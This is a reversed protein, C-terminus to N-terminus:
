ICKYIANHETNQTKLMFKAVTDSKSKLAILYTEFVRLNFTFHFEDSSHKSAVLRLILGWIKFECVRRKYHCSSSYNFVHIIIFGELLDQPLNLIFLHLVLSHVSSRQRHIRLSQSDSGSWNFWQVFLSFLTSDIRNFIYFVIECFNPLWVMSFNFRGNGYQFASQSFFRFITYLIKILLKFTFFSSLVDLSPYDLSQFYLSTNFLTTKSSIILIFPPKTTPNQFTVFKGILPQKRSEVIRVLKNSRGDWGIAQWFSNPCGFDYLTRQGHDKQLLRNTLEASM